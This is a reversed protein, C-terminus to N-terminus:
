KREDLYLQVRSNLTAAAQEASRDGNFYPELEEEVMAWLDAAPVNDPVANDMMWWFQEIQEEDLATIEWFLGGSGGHQIPPDSVNQQYAEIIQENVSRRVMFPRMGGFEGYESYKQQGEESLLYRLFDATGEKDAASKNMYLMDAHMYIGDGSERPYGILRGEEKFCSRVLNLLGSYTSRLEIGAIRGDAFCEMIENSEYQGTYAYERAFALLELFPQETLHSEGKEWDIFAKNEEDYLGYYMVIDVGNCGEQLVEAESERVAEMMEELTWSAETTIKRSIALARPYCRIPIGYLKDEIKGAEFASEIFPSMDEVIGDLPELDATVSDLTGRPLIDDTLLDPGGGTTMELLIRRRYDEPEESNKPSIVRVHYKESQRNYRVVVRQLAYDGYTFLTIEQKETEQSPERMQATLIYKEGEFGVCFLFSGDEGFACGYIQDLPYELDIFTFLEQLGDEGEKYLWARYTNALLIEGTASIAIVFEDYAGIQDTIRSIVQGDTGSWLVLEEREFGYPFLRGTAPDSIMGVVRGTLYDSSKEQGEQDFFALQRSGGAAVFGDEIQSWSAGQLNEPIELLPTETGDWHYYELLRRDEEIYRVELLVGDEAVGVLNEVIRYDSNEQPWNHSIGYSEWHDYPPALVQVCTAVAWLNPVYFHSFLYWGGDWFVSSEERYKWNMEQWAEGQWVGDEWLQDMLAAESDPMELETLHYSIEEEEEQSIGADLAPQPSEGCGALLICILLFISLIRTRNAISHM